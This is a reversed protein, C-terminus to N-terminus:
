THECSSEFAITDRPKVEPLINPGDRAAINFTDGFLYRKSTFHSGMLNMSDQQGGGKTM